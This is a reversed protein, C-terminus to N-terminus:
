RAARRIKMMLSFSGDCVQEAIKNTEELEDTVSRVRGADLLTIMFAASCMVEWSAYDFMVLGRFM